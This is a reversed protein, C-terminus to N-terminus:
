TFNTNFNLQIQHQLEFRNYYRHTDQTINAIKVKQGDYDLEPPDPLSLTPGVTTSTVETINSDASINTSAKLGDSSSNEPGQGLQTALVKKKDKEKATLEKSGPQDTVAQRKSLLKLIPQEPAEDEV